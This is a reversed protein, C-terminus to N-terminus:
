VRGIADDQLPVFVVCTRSYEIRLNAGTHQEPTSLSVTLSTVISESQLRTAIGTRGDANSLPTQSADHINTQCSAIEAFSHDYFNNTNMKVFM